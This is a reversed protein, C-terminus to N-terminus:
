HSVQCEILVKSAESDQDAKGPFSRPSATAVHYNVLDYLSVSIGEEDECYM